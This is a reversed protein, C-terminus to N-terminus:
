RHKTKAARAKKALDTWSADTWSADTWSAAPKADTWSAAPRADTWSAASAGAPACLALVIAVVGAASFRPRARSYDPLPGHKSM